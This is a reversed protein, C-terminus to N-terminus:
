PNGLLSRMVDSDLCSIVAAAADYPHEWQGKPTKAATLFPHVPQAIRRDVGEQIQEKSAQRNNCIAKKLQQPSVMLVPLGRQWAMTAIIGWTMAMQAASRSNRPFSMAEACVCRPEGTEGLVETLRQVIATVRRFDDNAALLKLKKDSKETRIVGATVVEVLHLGPATREVNLVAYGFSRLGPDVGLVRVRSM